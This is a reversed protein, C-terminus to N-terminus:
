YIGFLFKLHTAGEECTHSKKTTNFYKLFFFRLCLQCFRVDNFGNCVESCKKDSLNRSALCSLHHKTQTIKFTPLTM